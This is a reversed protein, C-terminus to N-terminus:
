LNFSSKFVARQPPRSPRFNKRDPFKLGPISRESGTFIDPESGIELSLRALASPKTQLQLWKGTNVTNKLM